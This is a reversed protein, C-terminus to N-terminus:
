LQPFSFLVYHHFSFSCTKVAILPHHSVYVFHLKLSGLDWLVSISWEQAPQCSMSWWCCELLSSIPFRCLACLSSWMELSGGCLWLPLLANEARAQLEVKERYKTPTVWKPNVEETKRQGGINTCGGLHAACGSCPWICPSWLCNNVTSMQQLSPKQTKIGNRSLKLVLEM